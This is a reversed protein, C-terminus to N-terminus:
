PLPLELAMREPISRHRHEMERVRFGMRTFFPLSDPNEGTELRLLHFEGRLRRVLEELLATGWGQGRFAPVVALSCLRCVGVGEDTVLAAARLSDGEPADDLVAEELWEGGPFCLDVAEAGDLAAMEGLLAEEPGDEELVFVRGRDLLSLIEEEEGGELLLPVASERDEAAERVRM